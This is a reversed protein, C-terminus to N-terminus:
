SRCYHIQLRTKSIENGSGSKDIEEEAEMKADM